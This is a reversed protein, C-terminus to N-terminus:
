KNKNIVLNQYNIKNIDRQTESINELISFWWKCDSHYKNPNGNVLSQKMSAEAKMLLKELEIKRNQLKSIAM